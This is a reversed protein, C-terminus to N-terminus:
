QRLNISIYIVLFKSDRGKKLCKPGLVLSGELITQTALAKYIVGFVSMLMDRDKFVCVVKIHKEKLYKGRTHFFQGILHFKGM